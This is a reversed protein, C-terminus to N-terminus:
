PLKESSRSLLELLCAVGLVIGTAALGAVFLRKERVQQRSVAAEVSSPSLDSFNGRTTSQLRFIDVVPAHGRRVMETVRIVDSEAQAHAALSNLIACRASHAATRLAFSEAQIAAAARYTERQQRYNALQEILEQHLQRLTAASCPRELAREELSRLVAVRQLDQDMTKNPLPAVQPAENNTNLNEIRWCNILCASARGHERGGDFNLGSSHLRHSRTKM